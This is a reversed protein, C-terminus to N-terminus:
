WCTNDSRTIAHSPTSLTWPVCLFLITGLVYHSQCNFFFLFTCWCFFLFTCLLLVLFHELLLVLFHVLLRCLQTCHMKIFSFFFNMFSNLTAYDKLASALVTLFSTPFSLLHFSHLQCSVYFSLLVSLVESVDKSPQRQRRSFQPVRFVARTTNLYAPCECVSLMRTPYQMVELWSFWFLHRCQWVLPCSAGVEERSELLSIRMQGSGYESKSQVPTCPLIQEFKDEIHWMSRSLSQTNMAWKSYRSIQQEKWNPHLLDAGKEDYEGCWTSQVPRLCLWLSWLSYERLWRIWILLLQGLTFDISTINWVGVVPKFVQLM